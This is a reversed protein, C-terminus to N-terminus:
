DRKKICLADLICDIYIDMEQRLDLIARDFIKFHQINLFPPDLTIVKYCNVLLSPGTVSSKLPGMGCGGFPARPQTVGVNIGFLAWNSQIVRM